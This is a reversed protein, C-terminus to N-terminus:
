PAAVSEGGSISGLAGWIGFPSTGSPDRRGEWWIETWNINNNADPYEAGVYNSPYEAPPHEVDYNQDGCNITDSIFRSSGDLFLVNVGGSHNSTASALGSNWIGSNYACSLTNPPLVTQFGTILAISLWANSGRFHQVADGTFVTRNNTDVRARCSAPIMNNVEAAIGGKVAHTFYTTEVVAESFAITNSTGDFIAAFSNYRWRGGFPSRKSWGPECTSNISDGWSMMYNTQTINGVGSDLPSLGASNGDSPCSLYSIKTRYPVRSGFEYPPTCVNEWFDDPINSSLGVMIVDYAGNQEMFPLLPVNFSFSGYCGWGVGNVLPGGGWHPLTDFTSHYNHLGIGFQKLHNVCQMRRAAERAAQVAPLLLAILVGIIAIV